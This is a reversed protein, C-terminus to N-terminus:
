SFFVESSTTSKSSIVVSEGDVERYLDHLSNKYNLWAHNLTLNSEFADNLTSKDFGQYRDIKKLKTIASKIQEVLQRAPKLYNIFFRISVVAVFIFM